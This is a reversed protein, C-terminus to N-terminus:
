AKSSWGVLNEVYRAIIDTELNIPDGAVRTGLNTNELTYKVLSVVFTCDQCRVVTLSIGDIAIFGKEVIYKMLSRPAEFTMLVAEGEPERSTVTGVGEIHGQVLHGGIRGGFALSRELNVPDGVKLSGLNTRKLTEPMLDFSMRKGKISTVTLCVGNAAISDGPATGELTKRGQIVLRYPATERIIGKEEVIGTFM